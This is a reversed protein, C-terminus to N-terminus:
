DKISYAEKLAKVIDEVGTLVDGNGLLLSPVSRVGSARVLAPSSDVDIIDVTHTFKELEQKVVKCPTCWSATFLKVNSM